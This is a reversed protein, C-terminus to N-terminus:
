GGNKQNFVFGSVVNNDGKVDITQNYINQQLQPKFDSEVYVGDVNENDGDTRFSGRTDFRAANASYDMKDVFMVEDERNEFQNMYNKDITKISEKGETNDVVTMTYLLVGSLFDEFVVTDTKSLTAKTLESVKDVVTDPRIEDDNAIIDKLALVVNSKKNGNILPVVTKKFYEIFVSKDTQAEIENALDIVAQTLNKRCNALDSTTGDDTRLDYNIPNVSLIVTGCINKQSKGSASKCSTFVKIFSGFCLRKL